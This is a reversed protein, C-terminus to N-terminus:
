NENNYHKIFNTVAKYTATITKRDFEDVIPPNCEDSILAHGDHISVHYGLENIRDVVDMLWNWDLHFLLYDETHWDGSIYYYGIDKLYWEYTRSMLTAGVEKKNSQKYGMFEAILKNNDITCM